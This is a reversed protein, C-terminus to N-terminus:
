LELVENAVNVLRLWMNLSARLASVDEAEVLLTVSNADHLLQTVSKDGPDCGAEPSLSAYLKEAYPTEFVFKAKHTMNAM